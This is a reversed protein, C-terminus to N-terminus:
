HSTAGTVYRCGEITRSDKGDFSEWKKIEHGLFLHRLAQAVESGLHRARGQLCVLVPRMM